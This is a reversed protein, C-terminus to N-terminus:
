LQDFATKGNLLKWLMESLEKTKVRKQKMSTRERITITEDQLTQHDVTIAFPIGTEDSRAYRRGISGSEDYIGDLGFASIEGFIQNAKESLGDKKVLPYVAFLYPAVKPSLDLYVREEAGRKEKKLNVDLLVYLTRDTGCSLEFNHPIFKEKEGEEKVSLDKKSEKAHRSLDYDTRNNCAAVEVWGLNTNVEFDFAELAYFAKEDKGLERFRMKELPIGLRAMFQQWRALYYAILRSSITKQAIAKECSTPEIKESGERMINLEYDKVDDWQPVDNTKKPNFFIEIETQSFERARIITNRPSIENRFSTGAQGVGLPMKQRFGKYLRDFDCFISQCTEPRLYAIQDGTAGVDLKLMLNFKKVSAFDKGKCKPCTVAHKQILADMESTAMSEPVLDKTHGMILKDARHLSHCKQCQVIPDNFNELHGSAKFVSKPLAQSGSIEIFGENHLMDRRWAAIINNKIRSGVPGFDWFGGPADAYIEAAPFFLSKRSALNAIDDSPM